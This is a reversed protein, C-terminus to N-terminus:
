KEGEEAGCTSLSLRAQYEDILQAVTVTTIPWKKDSPALKVSADKFEKIVYVADGNVPSVLAGEFFGHDALNGNVVGTGNYEIFAPAAPAPASTCKVSYDFPPEHATAERM